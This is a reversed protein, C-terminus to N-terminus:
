KQPNTLVREPHTYINLHDGRIFGITTINLEEALQLALHTPAAKSLLIGVGIKSVKILVESSIRGSFAILKNGLNIGNKISYGYLKDLANHRGIDTRFIMEGDLSCLAANHVGGTEKFITSSEHLHNMMQISDEITIKLNSNITKATKVDNEFYFNRSKGCCSGIFRKIYDHPSFKPKNKIEVYAFGKSEIITISIVEEIFRIVGESALFGIIMEELHSPSCIITAFEEGNLFITLPMEYAIEDEVEQWQQEHYQIINKKVSLPHEIM